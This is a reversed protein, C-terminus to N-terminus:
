VETRPVKRGWRLSRSLLSVLSQWLNGGSQVAKFLAAYGFVLDVLMRNAMRHADGTGDDM